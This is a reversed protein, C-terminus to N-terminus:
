IYSSASEMEAHLRSEQQANVSAAIRQLSAQHEAGSRWMFFAGLSLTLTIVILLTGVLHLRPFTRENAVIRM